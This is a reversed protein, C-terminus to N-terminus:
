EHSPGKEAKISSVKFEPIKALPDVAPNTLLNAPADEWHFAMFAVGPRMRETQRAKTLVKGRRSSLTITDGDVIGLQDADDPNIEVCSEPVLTELVRSRHSMSGTHWHELVRGTTLLMPFDPSPIEAPPKYHVM